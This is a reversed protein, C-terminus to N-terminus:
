FTEIKENKRDVNDELIFPFAFFLKVLWLIGAVAFDPYGRKFQDLVFCFVTKPSYYFGARTETQFGHFLFHLIHMTPEFGRKIQHQCMADELTILKPGLKQIIHEDLQPFGGISKLEKTRCIMCGLTYQMPARGCVAIAKPHAQLTQMCKRYWDSNLIIDDDVFCMLSSNCQLLGKNRLDGIVGKGTILIINPNPIVAKVSKITNGLTERLLTVIVVDLIKGIGSCIIVYNNKIPM